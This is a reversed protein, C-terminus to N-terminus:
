LLMQEFLDFDRTPIDAAERAMGPHMWAIVQQAWLPRNLHLATYWAKLQNLWSRMDMSRDPSFHPIPMPPSYAISSKSSAMVQM